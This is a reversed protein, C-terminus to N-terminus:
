LMHTNYLLTMYAFYKLTEGNISIPNPSHSCLVIIIKIGCLFSRLIEQTNQPQFAFHVMGVSLNLIYCSQFHSLLSIKLSKTPKNKKKKERSYKSGNLCWVPSKNSRTHKAAGTQDWSLGSTSYKSFDVGSNQCKVCSCFSFVNGIFECKLQIWIPKATHTWNWLTPSTFHQQYSCNNFFPLWLKWLTLYAMNILTKQPCLTVQGQSM